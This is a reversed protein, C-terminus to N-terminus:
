ALKDYAEKGHERIYATKQTVTMDAKKGTAAKGGSNSGNAGGGANNPASVFHKGDEGQAFASVFDTISQGGITAVTNGDQEGVEAKNEALILAKAAKLHAPNTVGAKNLAETIGNDVLLKHLQAQLTQNVGTLKEQEKAYKQELSQKIKDVDGSAELAEQEAKEKAEKIEDLQEQISKIGDKQKKIEGLLESNKSKLGETEKDILKQLEAKGEETNLDLTTM